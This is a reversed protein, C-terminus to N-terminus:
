DDAGESLLTQASPLYYTLTVDDLVPSSVIRDGYKQQGLAGNMQFQYALTGTRGFLSGRAYLWRGAFGANRSLDGGADGLDQFGQNNDVGSVSAVFDTQPTWRVGLGSYISPPYMTWTFSRLRVRQIGEPFPVEFRNVYKGPDRTFYGLEENGRDYIGFFTQFEDITANAPIKKVDPQLEQMSRQLVNTGFKFVGEDSVAQDRYLGGLQIEDKPEEENLAVWRGLGLNHNTVFDLIEHDLRVKIRNSDQDDNYEVVLHHWEHARWDSVDVIVDTRAWTKRQDSEVDDEESLEEDDGILPYARDPRNQFFAQHYYLRTIRLEGTTNKWIWFQTGESDELNEGVETQVQTTKLLGSFVPDDGNFELKIWFSVGGQYYPLNGTDDGYNQRMAGQQGPTGRVESAPFRLIRTGTRLVRMMSMHFGDPQLDGNFSATTVQPEKINEIENASDAAGWTDRSYRKRFRSDQAYTANLIKRLERQAEPSRSGTQRVARRLAAIDGAERYRFGHALRLNSRNSYQQTRLEPRVQQLDGDIAGSLEIRGDDNSGYYTEPDLVDMADPYSSVYQRDRFSSVGNDNFPQEFQRQTTHHLVDFVKVISRRQTEAFVRATEESDGVVIEALSSVEYIGKSDFCFETTHGVLVDNTNQGENGLKVLNGKDVAVYAPVNPNFRNIRTNPNFNAKLLDRMMDYYFANSGSVPLGSQRRGAREGSDHGRRYLEASPGSGGTLAGRYRGPNNPDRPNVVNISTPPPFTSDPLQNIFDEFGPQTTDGSRWVKFPRTKRARIIEDALGQAVEFTFPQSYVWVPIQLLRTEEQTPALTGDVEIESRNQNEFGQTALETYPFARRGGLGTLCAILVERPATNVNIPARSEPAVAPEGEVGPNVTIQNSNLVASNDGDLQLRIPERGHSCRQTYPNVWARTTVFDALLRYNETGILDRLETKSAFERGPLKSRYRLIDIGNIRKGSMKPGSYLPNYQLEPNSQIARGLNDLMQALTDQDGNLYIQSNCDILKIRFRDKSGEGGYTAGVESTYSTREPPTQSLPMLNGYRLDGRNSRLGYLWPTRQSSSGDTYGDWMAGGRLMAVVASEASGALLDVSTANVFNETAKRELRMLAAFTVGIISLLTLVALAIILM